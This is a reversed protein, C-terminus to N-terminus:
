KVDGKIEPRPRNRNAPLDAVKRLNMVIDRVATIQELSDGYFLEQFQRKTPPFNVPMISEYTLFRHPHAVWRRVWDPRLREPALDLPPGQEQEAKMVGVRHCKLCISTVLYYGDTAYAQSAEWARQEPGFSKKNLRDQLNKLTKAVTQYDRERKQFEEINGLLREEDEGEGAEKGLAGQLTQTVYRHLMPALAAAAPDRAAKAEKLNAKEEPIRASLEKEWLPAMEKLRRRYEERNTKLRRVYGPTKGELYGDEQEPVKVYPYKLGIGPNTVKSVAAFYNVLAMAEEDSMNFRPMRLRVMPRLPQPNRLFRFLWDPRVREGERLLPPPSSARANSNDDPFRPNPDYENRGAKKYIKMLYPVLLDAFHGGWAPTAETLDRPVVPLQSFAGFDVVEGQRNTYHMARTLILKPERGQSGVGLKVVGYIKLLDTPLPDPSKWASHDPFDYDSKYDEASEEELSKGGGVKRAMHNLWDTSLKFDYIGSRVLHCASCNYKDLVQRGKVEALRDAGPQNVFKTPIPEAVLGLVFNMVAERAEAEELEARAKFDLGSEAPRQKLKAPNKSLGKRLAFETDSEAGRQKTRAFKFLPMRLREDWPRLRNYDYSRPDKLKQHLFGERSHHDLADMFFREYLPKKGKKLQKTDITDVVKFHDKVFHEIDEFALREPDKKGWDNLPTGIPKADDFGPINHCGFCGLRGIAKRGVYWKLSDRATKVDGRVMRAFEREDPPLDKYRPYKARLLDTVEESSMVKDLSVHALREFTKPDTKVQVKPWDAGREEAGVEATRDDLLWAAVSAAEEFDLHTFPMLTRPSHFSPDLIWQILWRRKSPYDEGAADTGLKERLMSLNPGFTPQDGFYPERDIAPLTITKGGDIDPVRGPGAQTVAKHSHCALCGKETFLRRGNEIQKATAKKPPKFDAKDRSSAQYAELSEKYKAALKKPAKRQRLRQSVERLEKKEPDTLTDGKLLQDARTLLKLRAELRRIKKLTTGEWTKRRDTDSPITVSLVKEFEKLDDENGNLDDLLTKQAPRLGQKRKALAREQARLRQLYDRFIEVVTLYDARRSTDLNDAYAASEYFLYYALAEIEADTFKKQDDPLGGTRPDNNSLGYFHPMRTTPRFSRPSKIWRKVWGPHTKEGLRYLSPGVKRMTGPPNTPDSTLKVREEASLDSLPPNPELRLDPGIHRGNKIGSIEHCGFCGYERVLHYGRVLKPAENKNGARILDTVQHHCQLCGSEVFRRAHMPYEWDHNVKWGHEEAWRKRTPTDTPTHSAFFFSTSSGQGGHCTTCGFKEQPHPSEAGVFLDLRPHSSFENVRAESLDITKLEFGEMLSSLKEEYRKQAALSTKRAKSNKLSKITARAQSISDGSGQSRAVSELQTGLKRLPDALEKGTWSSSERCLLAARRVDRVQPQKQKPGKARALQALQNDLTTLELLEVRQRLAALRNDTPEKALNRLAQKDYGPRDIALHCTTCRDFRTVYKFSYDIPLDNLTFQNIKIPSNFADIVPLSRFWDNTKWRRAKASELLNDFSERLKKLRAEALTKPSELKEKRRKLDEEQKKLKNFDALASQYEEELRDIDKKLRVARDSKPGRQDVEIDYFSRYSDLDAKVGRVKNDAKVLPARNADIDSQLIDIKSQNAEVQRTAEGVEYEANILLRPDPLRALAMRKSMEEEVDRFARQETKWERAYDDYFMWVISALMVFCSAGFVVDLTKQNRYTQDTAAM